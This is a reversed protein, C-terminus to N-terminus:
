SGLGVVSGLLWLGFLLAGVAFFFACLRGPSGTQFLSSNGPAPERNM